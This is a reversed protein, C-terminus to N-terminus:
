IVKRSHSYHWLDCTGTKMEKLNLHHFLAHSIIGLDMRNDGVLGRGRDDPYRDDTNGFTDSALGNPTLGLTFGNFLGVTIMMTMMMIMIVM